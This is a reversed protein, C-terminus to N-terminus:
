AAMKMMAIMPMWRRARNLRATSATSITITTPAVQWTSMPASYGRGM